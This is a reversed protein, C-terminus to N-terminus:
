REKVEELLADVIPGVSDTFVFKFRIVGRADIVYTTPWGTVNWARAIPGRTSGGDWWSRWTIKETRITKKLKERDEDSNM